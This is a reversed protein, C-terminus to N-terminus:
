CPNCVSDKNTSRHLSFMRAATQGASQSKISICGTDLARLSNRGIHCAPLGIHGASKAGRLKAHWNILSIYLTNWSGMRSEEPRLKTTQAICDLKEKKPAPEFDAEGLLRRLYQSPIM